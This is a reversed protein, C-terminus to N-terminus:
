RYSKAATLHTHCWCDLQAAEALVPVSATDKVAKERWQWKIYECLHVAAVVKCWSTYQVLLRNRTQEPTHNGLAHWGDCVWAM